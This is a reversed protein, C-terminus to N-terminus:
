NKKTQQKYFKMQCPRFTENLFANTTIVEFTPDLAMALPRCLEM